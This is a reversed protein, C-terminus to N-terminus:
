KSLLAEFENSEAPNTDVILGARDSPSLGFKGLYLSMLKLYNNATTIAPNQQTFGKSNTVTLGSIRIDEEAQRWRAFAQCYGVFAAEDLETMLGLKELREHLRHYETKAYKHLWKPCKMKGVDPKVEKESLKRKGPNGELIKLATPKKPRGGKMGPM